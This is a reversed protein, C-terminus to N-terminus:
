VLPAVGISVGGQFFQVAGTLTGSGPPVTTVTATLPNGFTATLSTTTGAKAVTFLLLPATSAAYNADGSYSATLNHAGANLSPLVLTAHGDTGIPVSIRVAGESLTVTGTPAPLGAAGLLLAGVTVPTGFVPTDPSSATYFGAVAKGVTLQ